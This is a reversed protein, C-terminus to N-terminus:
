AEAHLTQTGLVIALALRDADETGPEATYVSIRLDDVAVILTDCDLTIRGVEPHDVVKRKSTDPPPPPTDSAWLEAFRPSQDALDAILRRLAQDAPYRSATLRLDAVLRAEHEAQEQATHVTRSRPGLLNRWIANREIGHWASTEGMLADYPANALVLTWTADHVAVPTHALRDLLRQVSPTVRSSVVGHGPSAHGALEYLLDRERDSIRLAQALAEVVQASPATARGQELRTLYDASIGALGALEERRLGPARRRRGVPVGAVEPRVRDRWRRVTRGFEWSSSEM